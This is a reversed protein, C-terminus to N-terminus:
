FFCHDALLAKLDSYGPESTDFEVALGDSKVRIIKGRIQHRLAGFEVLMLVSDGKFFDGEEISRIYLGGESINKISGRHWSRQVLYDVRVFSAHRLYRRKEQRSSAYLKKFSKFLNAM